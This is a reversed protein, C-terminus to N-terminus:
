FRQLDKEACDSWLGALDSADTELRCCGPQAGPEFRGFEPRGLADGGAATAMRLVTQPDLDGRHRLLWRVESWLILDPNSARSDTGLAVRIGARLLRDVPHPPYGFYAHTRPCYVVSLNDHKAICGIEDDRLDNGHILLAWPAEALSEILALLPDPPWPFLGERWVGLGRLSEALPGSGRELLQREDASEAVHMAIGRGTQVSQRVCRDIAERATSYPAHPSWGGHQYRDQHAVAAAFREEWRPRTLGIVEAFRVLEPTDTDKTAVGDDTQTVKPPSGADNGLPGTDKGPRGTDKGPRGTDIGAPTSIEGILRVGAAQSEALGHLIAAQRTGEDSNRRVEIVQGIWDALPMGPSGIPQKLDSFELHTHANVLGPLIANDGWEEAGQPPRGRGVEIVRNGLMQIWGGQIPASTMPLIWRAAITRSEAREM